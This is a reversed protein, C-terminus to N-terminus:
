LAPYLRRLKIRAEATTFQWRVEVGRDNRQEEWASVERELEERTEIRRDLCQRALVSLEIESVNLWSGHKPTHHVELREAIARAREPPFAEYLSALKHTNLNDMVLVVREAEEHVEEVLWAVVEAFDVATRRDTVRVARWGLLPESIMFLDATGNRAYEYDFREPRGPEAPVPRIVEGILQKSAEDLCVLPRREDYPRHYVELVDEMACVFGADREPPLCWQQRLWPKIENKKLTVRVTEDSISDVVELEVLKDAPLRMTWSKRGEPPASCALAILRAEARGDLKPERAPRERRKHDLAAELGREVFRQRVREVTADSVELAEAIRGDPWAPGGEAADAKLLIRAHTLKRAAARGAAILDHLAQREESGLTVKYKKM